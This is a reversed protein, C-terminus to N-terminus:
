GKFRTLVKINEAFMM